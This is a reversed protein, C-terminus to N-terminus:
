RKVAVRRELAGFLWGSPLTLVLYAIGAGTYAAIPRATQTNLRDAAGTLEVVSITYAIASNKILAIFLNGIPGVVTRLAQPLVVSGLVQGFTLGLARAAEAQGTAVANIGSRITEGVYTGTYAALVIVASRFPSYPGIGIKTFGFFFVLMLAILPTNRVVETYVAAAVRLPPVPSVRCSALVVGLAFAGAFSLLTLAVTTRLGDAFVDLNDTIVDM